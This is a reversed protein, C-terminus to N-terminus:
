LDVWVEEPSLWLPHLRGLKHHETALVGGGMVGTMSQAYPKIFILLTRHLTFDHQLFQMHRSRWQGMYDGSAVLAVTFHTVASWVLLPFDMSNDHSKKVM